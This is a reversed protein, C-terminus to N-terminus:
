PDHWGCTFHCKKVGCCVRTDIRSPGSNYLQWSHHFTVVWTQLTRTEFAQATSCGAGSFFILFILSKTELSLCLMKKYIYVYSFLHATLIWFNQSPWPYKFFEWVNSLVYSWFLIPSKTAKECYIFNRSFMPHNSLVYFHYKTVM